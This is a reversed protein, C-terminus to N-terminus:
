DDLRFHLTIVTSSAIAREGERAPQYRWHALIHRRAAALFTRDASGVPAVATVRGREDITLRLRLVAEDGRDRKSEPYPPEVMAAPTVFRPGTRVPGPIALPPQLSPQVGPGIVPEARPPLDVVPRDLVLADNSPIPVIVPM